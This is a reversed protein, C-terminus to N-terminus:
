RSARESAGRQRGVEMVTDNTAAHMDLGALGDGYVEAGGDIIKGENVFGAGVPRELALVGHLKANWLSGLVAHAKRGGHRDSGLLTRLPRPPPLLHATLFQREAKRLPCLGSQDIINYESPSAPKAKHCM